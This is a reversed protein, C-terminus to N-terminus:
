EWNIYEFLLYSTKLMGDIAGDRTDQSAKNRAWLVSDLYILARSFIRPGTNLM